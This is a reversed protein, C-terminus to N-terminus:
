WKRSKFFQWPIIKKNKEKEGDPIQRTNTITSLMLYGDPYKFVLKNSPPFFIKKKSLLLFNFKFKVDQFIM